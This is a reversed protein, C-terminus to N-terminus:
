FLKDIDSVNSLKLLYICCKVFNSEKPPTWRYIIHYNGSNYGEMYWASGDEGSNYPIENPLHWFNITDIYKKFEDWKEKPLQSHLELTYGGDSRLGSENANVYLEISDKFHEIKIEGAGLGFSIQWGIRYIEADLEDKQLSKKDITRGMLKYRNKLLTDDNNYVTTLTDARPGCDFEMARKTHKTETKSSKGTSDNNKTINQTVKNSCSCIFFLAALIILFTLSKM